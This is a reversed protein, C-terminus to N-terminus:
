VFARLSWAEDRARSQIRRRRPGLIGTDEHSEVVVKWFRRMSEPLILARQKITVYLTVKIDTDGPNTASKDTSGRLQTFLSSESVEPVHHPTPLPIPMVLSCKPALFYCFVHIGKKTPGMHCFYWLSLETRVWNHGVKHGWPGWPAHWAERDMVLEWLKSLSM